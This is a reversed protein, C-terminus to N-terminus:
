SRTCHIDIAAIAAGEGYKDHYVQAAKATLSYDTDANNQFIEVYRNAFDGNKKRYSVRVKRYGPVTHITM